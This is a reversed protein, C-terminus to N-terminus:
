ISPSVGHSRTPVSGAVLWPLSFGGLLAAVATGAGGSILAVLGALGALRALLGGIVLLEPYRSQAAWQQTRTRVARYGAGLATGALAYGIIGLLPTTTVVLGEM